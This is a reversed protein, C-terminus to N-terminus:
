NVMELKSKIQTIRDRYGAAEEFELAEAARRMAEELEELENELKALSQFPGAEEASRGQSRRQTIQSVSM